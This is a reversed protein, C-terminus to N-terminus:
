LSCFTSLEFRSESKSIEERSHKSKKKIHCGYIIPLVSNIVLFYLACRRGDWKNFM